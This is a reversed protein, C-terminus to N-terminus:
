IHIEKEGIVSCIDCPLDSVVEIYEKKIPHIFTIKYCHLSQRNIFELSGGYMDDGSLPHGISSMHCRIQHTRGTELIFKTITHNNKAFIPFYHTVARQGDDSVVRQISRGEMVKIPRDVTGNEDIVGECVAVYEKKVTDVLLNATVRDKAMLVCGSTDRDLRNIARFTYKEGKEEMYYSIINALTDEQHIKTPHVPMFPPKNVVIIYEDEFLIDLEGQIPKIDNEDDPMSLVVKDGTHLIHTTKLLEGNRTIGLNTRKLKSLTRASVGCHRRLFTKTDMGDCELPVSYEILKERDSNYEINMNEGFAICSCATLTYDCTYRDYIEIKKNQTKNIVNYRAYMYQWWVCFRSDLNKRQNEM